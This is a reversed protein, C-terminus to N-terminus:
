RRRSGGHLADLEEGVIRRDDWPEISNNKRVIGQESGKGTVLVIDGKQALSLAQRIAARRDLVMFLNEHAIKGAQVAGDAVQNIIAMPDDDYPDEDTVIVTDANQAALEGLKPRRAVDRGGGASGLVHIVRKHKLTKVVDYLAQVARPEFAYDVVVSFNQGREIFELRGPIGHITELAASIRSAALGQSIGVTAAAMANSINHRGLLNVTFPEHGVTFTVGRDTHAIDEARIVRADATSADTLTFGYKEEAWPKLFDASHEDDLNAVIVKKIKQGAIIKPQDSKLKTFLKLKANKYNEFSGHAEIHEPYLNTFVLVDYNIGHHRFQEIGQSTTEIVAYQCNAKAMDSILKQTAFRGVMTMKKDNLWEKKDVKFLITSAAGVRFGAHELMKTILYVATSKGSTGTVGIVILRESPHRYWAAALVALCYHYVRILPRPVIKKIQHIM